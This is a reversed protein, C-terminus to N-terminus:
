KKIIETRTISTIEGTDEDVFDEIWTYIRIKALLQKLINFKIAYAFLDYPDVGKRVKEMAIELRRKNTVIM